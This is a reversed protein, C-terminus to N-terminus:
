GWSPWQRAKVEIHVTPDFIIARPQSTAIYTHYYGEIQTFLKRVTLPLGVQGIDIEDNVREFLKLWLSTQRAIIPKMDHPTITLYFGRNIIYSKTTKLGVCAIESWRILGVGAASSTDIIGEPTVQLAPRRRVLRVLWYVTGGAFGLLLLYLLPWYHAYPPPLQEHYALAVVCWVTLLVGAIIARILKWRSLYITITPM